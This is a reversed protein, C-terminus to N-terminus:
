RFVRRVKAYKVFAENLRDLTHEIKFPSNIYVQKLRTKYAARVEPDIMQKMAETMQSVESPNIYIAGDLCMERHGDFNSCIIPTELAQAELIPMNTPGLFTPMVLAIANKYLSYLMDNGVFGLDVVNEQLQLRAITENIFSKNGGDSGTFVLKLLKDGTRKLLEDFAILLSYHNKHAWFKAPYFFYHNPRLNHKLLLALQDEVPCQHSIVSGAFLPVVSIKDEVLLSFRIAEAKSSESEVIVGFARDIKSRYWDDRIDISQAFEPFIFTSVHGIDWNITLFPFDDIGVFFQRLYFVIDVNAARLVKLDNINSWDFRKKFLFFLVKFIGAKKLFLFFKRARTSSLKVYPKKLTEPKKKGRGVYCIEIPKTFPYTDISHVLKEFYTFNGGHSAELDDFIFIGIKM